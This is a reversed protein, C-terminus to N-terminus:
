IEWGSRLLNTEGHHAIRYEVDLRLAAQFALVCERTGEPGYVHLPATAGGTWRQMLFDPIDTIHDSHLHTLFLTDVMASLVGVANLLGAAICVRNMVICACC